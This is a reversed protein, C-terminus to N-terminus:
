VKINLPININYITGSANSTLSVNGLIAQVRKNINKLGNGGLSNTSLTKEAFGIGNDKIYFNINQKNNMSVKFLILSAKSHKIANNIIEKCVLFINRKQANTLSINEVENPIDIEYNIGSQELMESLNYRIFALLSDLSEDKDSLGWIIENMKDVLNNSNTKTKLLIDNLENNSTVKSAKQTLYVIQSLGAGIDDHMDSAIREREENIAIQKKLEAQQQKIKNNIFYKILLSIITIILLAVFIKFWWTQYWYAEVIFDIERQIPKFANSLVYAYVFLKYKGPNLDSIYLEQSTGADRWSKDKGIIKVKYFIEEEINTAAVGYSISVSQTGKPLKILNYYNSAQSIEKDNVIPNNIYLYPKSSNDMSAANLYYVISDGVDALITDKSYKNLSYYQGKPLSFLGDLRQVTNLTTNLALLGHECSIYITNSGDYVASNFLLDIYADPVNLKIAQRTKTNLKIIGLHNFLIYANDNVITINVPNFISNTPFLNKSLSFKDLVTGSNSYKYVSDNIGGPIFFINGAKDFNFASSVRNVNNVIRSGYLPIVQKTINNYVHPGNNYLSFLCFNSYTFMPQLSLLKENPMIDVLKNQKSNIQKLGKSTALLYDDNILNAYVVNRVKNVDYNITNIKKGFADLETITNSSYIKIAAIGKTGKIFLSNALPPFAKKETVISKTKTRILGDKINSHWITGQADKYFGNMGGNNVCYELNNIREIKNNEKDLYLPRFFTVINKNSINNAFGFWNEKGLWSQINAINTPTYTATTFNYEYLNYRDLGIWIKNPYTPDINMMRCRYEVQKPIYNPFPIFRGKFNSALVVIGKSAVFVISDKIYPQINSVWNYHNDPYADIPKIENLVTNNKNTILLGNYSTGIFSNNASNNYVCFSESIDQPKGEYDIYSHYSTFSYTNLNMKIVQMFGFCWLNSDVIQFSRCFEAKRNNSDLILNYFKDFKKGDFRVLGKNALWIFGKSDQIIDTIGNFTLGNSSNFITSHQVQASLNLQYFLFGFLLILFKFNLV